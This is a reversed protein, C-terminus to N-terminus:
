SNQNVLENLKNIVSSLERYFKGRQTKRTKYNHPFSGHGPEFLMVLFKLHEIVSGLERATGYRKWPTFYIEALDIDEMSKGKLEEDQLNKTSGELLYQLLIADANEIAAWFDHPQKKLKQTMLEVALELDDQNFTKNKEIGVWYQVAQATLMNALPYTKQNIEWAKEYFEEMKKLASQCTKGKTIQAQRKYASGLLSVRETTEGFTTNLKELQRLSVKILKQARKNEGQNSVAVALRARLNAQQESAKITAKASHHKLAIGYHYVAPEFQDIDGYARGLAENLTADNLWSNNIGKIDEKIEELREKLRDLGQFSTTKADEILNNVEVIAEELDVFRQEDKDLDDKDLKTLKYAPDGYCQYAGWTNTRDGHSKFTEARAQKVAEGFMGGGLMYAYFTEAFIVAAADDVAWGAAVVAKVGMEILRQALSAAFEHRAYSQAKEQETKADDKPDIKGLFCCNIFVLEPVRMMQNIENATLFVGDGLVMGTIKRQEDPNKRNEPRVYEFVGHGALHLIRYDDSFLQTMIEVTRKGILSKVNYDDKELLKAVSNAEQEAGQLDVFEKPTNAPNGIVMVNRNNVDIVQTRFVPTTLQRILGMDVVMPNESGIRRDYILEWPYRASTADVVLVIDSLDSLSAKVRNPFLLEFMSSALRWNWHTSNVAQEILKEMNDWQVTLKSEESRARSTPLTFILSQGYGKRIHMRNWWGPAEQYYARHWGGELTQVENNINYREKKPYNLLARTAEIVRDKYLEVFQVKTIRAKRSSPMQALSQNVLVVSELIADISNIISLEGDGTGVLLSDFEIEIKEADPKGEITQVAFKMLTTVFTDQMKKPSLEGVKGLGVIIAGGPKKEPNLIVLASGLEGPYIGLEHYTTLRGDLYHDLASEASVLPDGVYHGVAIPNECFALNGHAVSVQIPKERPGELRAPAAYMVAQELDIQDPFVLPQDDVLPYERQGARSAHQPTNPLLRTKGYALLEFIAPFDPKNNPLDGHAAEMYWVPMGAPIGTRWPVRGDGEDTGLFHLNNNGKDDKIRIGCPTKPAWGAVYAMKEPDTPSSDLVRSFNKAKDLDVQDPLALKEKTLSFLEDWHDTSFYNAQDDDFPLLELVGPFQVIWQLLEKKSHHFDLLDLLKLTRDKGMLLQPIVYAGQHPTGLLLLRSGDRKKFEEWVNPHLAFMARAVLGGMSHAVIRIPQDTEKFKAAIEVGLNHAADIISKRWDYAFPIVQHTASLYEILHLYTSAMPADPEINQAAIDLNAFGGGALELYNLWIRKDNVSLHTGMIGPLVYVVPQPVGSRKQYSRKTIEGRPAAEIRRAEHLPIFQELSELDDLLAEQIRSATEENEFYKFHNIEPSPLFFYRAKKVRKAGGYMSRTHVVLDHDELFFLNTIAVGLNQLIDKGLTDGAIVSLDADVKFDSRNLMRVMASKPLLCAVGPIAEPEHSQKKLDLLIDTIVDYAITASAGTVKGIVNILVELWRDLRGSALTTGGAAGAIRVFREIKPKKKKLEISLEKLQEKEKSSHKFEIDDEDFPDKGDSRISRCLLEGVLGGRSHSVLHLKAGEPLVRVLDLANQIPSASLTRHDLGFIREGYENKLNKWVNEELKGFSGNTSSFTGHLFILLPEKSVLDETSIDKGEQDLGHSFCYLGPQPMIREQDIKETAEKMLGKSPDFKLVRLAKLVWAAMGREAPDDSPFHQPILLEDTGESRSVSSSFKEKIEAVTMWRKYGNEFTLELVDDNALGELVLEDTGAARKSEVKVADRIKVNRSGGSYLEGPDKLQQDEQGFLRLKTEDKTM